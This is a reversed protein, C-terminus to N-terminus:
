CVDSVAGLGWIVKTEESKGTLYCTCFQRLIHQWIVIKHVAIKRSPINDVKFQGMVIEVTCIINQYRGSRFEIQGDIHLFQTNKVWLSPRSQQQHWSLILSSSLTKDCCHTLCLFKMFGKFWDRKKARLGLARNARLSKHLTEFSTASSMLVDTCITHM